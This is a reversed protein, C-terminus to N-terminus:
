NTDCLLTCEKILKKIESESFGANKLVTINKEVDKALTFGKKIFLHKQKRTLSTIATIPYLHFQVILQSLSEKKPYNWSTLKIGVCNSYKLAEYTFSTNTVIWTHM